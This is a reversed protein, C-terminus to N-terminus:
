VARVEKTNVTFHHEIVSPVTDNTAKFSDLFELSHYEKIDCNPIECEQEIKETFNESTM